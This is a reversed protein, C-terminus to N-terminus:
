VTFGNDESVCRHRSPSKEGQNAVNGPLRPWLRCKAGPHMTGVGRPGPRHQGSGRVSFPLAGANVAQAVGRALLLYIGPM